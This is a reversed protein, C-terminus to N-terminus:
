ASPIIWMTVTCQISTIQYHHSFTLSLVFSIVPSYSASLLNQKRALHVESKTQYIFLYIMHWGLWDPWTMAFQMFRRFFIKRTSWNKKWCQCSNECVHGSKLHHKMSCRKYVDWLYIPRLTVSVQNMIRSPKRKVRLKVQGASFFMLMRFVSFLLLYAWKVVSMVCSLQLTFQKSTGLLPNREVLIWEVSFVSWLNTLGFM